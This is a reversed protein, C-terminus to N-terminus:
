SSFCVSILPTSAFDPDTITDGDPVTISNSAETKAIIPVTCEAPATSQSGTYHYTSVKARGGAPCGGGSCTYDGGPHGYASQSGTNACWYLVHDVSMASCQAYGSAGQCYYEGEGWAEIASSNWTMYIDACEIAAIGGNGGMNVCDHAIVQSACTGALPSAVVQTVYQGDILLTGGTRVACSAALARQPTAASAAVVMGCAFLLALALRAARGASKKFSIEV